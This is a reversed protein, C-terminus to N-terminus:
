KSYIEIGHSSAPTTVNGFEDLYNGYQNRIRLDWGGNRSMIRVQEGTANTFLYVSKNNTLGQTFGDDLLASRIGIISRGRVSGDAFLSQLGSSAGRLGTGCPGASNHVLVPTNGAEVYYTHRGNGPQGANAALVYFDHDNNGPVTLDWMWGDHQAPVSGGDAVALTGDPTKLHEGPKLNSAPLWQNLSTNVPSVPNQTM